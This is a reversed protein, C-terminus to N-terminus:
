FLCWMEKEIGIFLGKENLKLEYKQLKGLCNVSNSNGTKLDFKYRHYPCIIEDDKTCLGNHLPFAQHPCKNKIAYFSNKTRVLCLEDIDVVVKIASDLAVAEEAEELSSFLKFWKIKKKKSFM